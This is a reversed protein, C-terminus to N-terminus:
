KIKQRHYENKGAGHREQSNNDSNSYTAARFGAGTQISECCLAGQGACPGRDQRKAAPPNM